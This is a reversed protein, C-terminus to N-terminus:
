PNFGVQRATRSNAGFLSGGKSPRHRRAHRETPVVV